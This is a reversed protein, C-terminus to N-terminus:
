VFLAQFPVREKKTVPFFRRFNFYQYENGSLMLTLVDEEM